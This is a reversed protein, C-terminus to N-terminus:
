CQAQEKQNSISKETSLYIVSPYIPIHEFPPIRFRQMMGALALDNASGKQPPFHLVFITETTDVLLSAPPLSFSEHPIFGREGPFLLVICSLRLKQLSMKTYHLRACVCAM